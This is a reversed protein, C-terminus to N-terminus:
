STVFHFSLFHNIAACYGGRMLEIIFPPTLHFINKGKTMSTSKNDTILLHTMGVKYGCFGALKAEKLPAFTKVRAYARKARKRPWYQLSGRRPRHSKGM